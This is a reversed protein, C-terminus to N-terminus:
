ENNEGINLKDIIILMMENMEDIDKELERIKRNQRQLTKMLFEKEM